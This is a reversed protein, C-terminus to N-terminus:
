YSKAMDTPIAIIFDAVGINEKDLSEIQEQEACSITLIKLGSNYKKLYYIIGENHYAGNFLLFTSGKKFSKNIFWAMTADKLAQAALLNDGGHGSAEKMEKYSTLSTDALVPLPALWSKAEAAVQTLSDAGYNYVISSYRRPANGAVFKLGNDRAFDLLPKYDTEFNKWLKAENKLTSYEFLKKLYENVVLQDDAELMEAGVILEKGKLHFLEKELQLELWHAISVNHIEGFLVVDAKSAAEALETFGSRKGSKSFITYAPKESYSSLILWLSIFILFSKM